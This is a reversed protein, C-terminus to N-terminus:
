GTMVMYTEMDGHRPRILAYTFWPRIKTGVHQGIVPHKSTTSSAVQGQLYLDSVLLSTNSALSM